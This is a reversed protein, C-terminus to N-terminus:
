DDVEWDLWDYSENSDGLSERLGECAQRIINSVLVRSCGLFEAIDKRRLGDRYHWKLVQREHPQLRDFPFNAETGEVWFASFDEDFLGLDESEEAVSLDQWKDEDNMLEYGYSFVPDMTLKTLETKLELRFRYYFYRFFPITVGEKEMPKYHRLCHIFTMSVMQHLDEEDMLTTTLYNLENVVRWAESLAAGSYQRSKLKKRAIPSRIYLCIFSRIDLHDLNFQRRLLLAEWRDLYKSFRDLLDLVARDDGSNAAAVLASIEESQEEWSPSQSREGNQSEPTEDEPPTHPPGQGFLPRPM